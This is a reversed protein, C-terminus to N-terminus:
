PAVAQMMLGCIYAMYTGVGYGLVALLVGVPALSPHFASAVVPASAAGGVNAQSGVAMYFLPAKIAKAVILMLSAHVLMWIIGVLFLGPNDFIATVNMHLGISAVLIYLFSSAVKSAGFAEIQRVKTFSLAIGITTSIVILWFFKSNLSYAQAWAFNDGFFPGLIDAMFHALGTIGFAIAIITMYDNLTPMRAHQAHYAEVRHKLEEIASTDAGTAADIKKHNAAMLLLVAMWINAVIVDVTVMVSFIDGGVEFMEKMSAQNAGGGIWSGAVTTMGRWVAEPGHGGVIEPNVMSVVIIAIPGGIVIGLTGVLFMILAKPGLNLIAKLDISITLLILCAPLLYRSAVYYVNSKNGDVIGFTNLLSPLFYCLLLAPVYKYFKQWFHHQSHSTKFVFGLIVALLGLVVADNTILVSESASM